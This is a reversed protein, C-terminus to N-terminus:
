QEEQSALEPPWAQVAHRDRDQTSWRAEQKGSTKGAQGEQNVGERAEKEVGGGQGTPAGGAQAWLGLRVVLWVVKQSTERPGTIRAKGTGGTWGRHLAASGGM